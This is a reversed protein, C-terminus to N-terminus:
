SQVFFSGVFVVSAYATLLTYQLEHLSSSKSWQVRKAEEMPHAVGTQKDHVLLDERDPMNPPWIAYQIPTWSASLAMLWLVSSWAAHTLMYLLTQYVSEANLIAGRATSVTVATICFLIYLVHMCVGSGLIIVRTRRYLSARHVPDRENLESVQSGSPPFAATNGGLFKPLLFSRIITIAHYTQTLPIKPVALHSRRCPAMWVMASADRQSLRYGASLNMIYEDLRNAILAVFCLRVLLRLQDNNAYAILTRESVLVIPVTLLSATLFVTFHSSITYIFGSVRQFLSM